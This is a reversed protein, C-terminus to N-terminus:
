RGPPIDALQNVDTLVIQPIGDVNPYMSAKGSVYVYGRGHGSYRIEILRLITQASASDRDPIWLNFKHTKSGAYILAGDGPWKNIGGQLDCFVIMESGMKAAEIIDDYDLRVSLAGAQIGFHRYDQAVNDRLHWWPLLVKYDRTNGSANTEPNWIVLGQSQADAEKEVFQEHYLRSRGYKVFYPSWGERVARLNYNEGNKYAYCILRGYNGRHKRLCVPLPDNTDFEIDVRIDSTPIGEENAEFYEKAWKSALKGANTVPKSGGHQSEETDLCVLRLSEKQDDLLVKITDGDVVKTLKLDKVFTGKM